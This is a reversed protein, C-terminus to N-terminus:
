LRGSGASPHFDRKQVRDQNKGRYRRCRKVVQGLRRLVRDGEIHGYTDNFAKFDDLDLMLLTLPHEYRNSRELEIKLQFYFHRSNYLQTLDDVISLERYRKESDRLAEEMRRRDTIDRAVAQFGVVKGDQFILQINQGLWIEHGDKMIFPYESYTNPIGKVFQRGFFKMAEERMDPRYLTLYHRGILEKEEYGMIRLAAPNVFTFHGTDDTRLVIDSANEVLTRYREESERLAEEAQKRETVDFVQSMVSIMKGASDHLMSNYWECHIVQRTKTYNRNSSVVHKSKGDTLRQMVSQVIPIDEEYIMRLEMISKGITEEASWGFMKEAAGTWRTVVFDANWEVVAMPSNDTHFRLRNESEQLAEEAQKRETIDRAVGMISVPRHNEDRIFSANVETWVTTGDKRRMELQVKESISIEGNGSKELEIIESLTKTVLDWSFPTMTEIPPQKLLEEPGYGMLIKVSPSVYTYNLNMDLIFIVDDVNDALLRYKNESKKLAKEAQKRETIDQAIEVVGILNGETDFVPEGREDWIRGDPTHLITHEPKQTQFARLTPCDKCPKSPDAWFEHCTHGTMEDLSKNVSEAAKKNVWIIRLDKDVFAINTAIGNLIANKQAENERLMEETQKRDSESLQLKKIKNKLISLEEILEQKTKSSDKM